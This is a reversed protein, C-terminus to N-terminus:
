DEEAVKDKKALQMQKLAFYEGGLATLEDDTGREAIVGNKIVCIIDSNVITSLRHAVVFTTRGVMLQALADQVLRESRTDLASTAEDLLLLPANKLVARAIAVRQRQGGSLLVGREGIITDFGQPMKDVFESVNAADSAKRVEDMTANPKGMKINDAITGDFLFVDQSVEAINARLSELTYDRMDLGNVLIAGATTDYFRELLHVITTKGGGSAGVLACMQGPKVVLNINDLIKRGPEDDYHFGANKFEVTIGNPADLKVADAKDKIGSDSDLFGFLGEAAILGQQVGGGINTLSKAPKYAATLALLFAMFDGITMIGRSILTGGVVLSAALGVSIMVEMLPSRLGDLQINKYQVGIAKDEIEGMRQRSPAEANYGQITKIGQISQLVWSASNAAIGFYKRTNKARKRLILVLPIFVAPVIFLLVICLPGAYWMMLAFMMLMTASNRILNVLSSTVLDLVANSQLSFLNMLLGSNTKKFRTMDQEIIHAYLRRRLRTAAHLGVHGMILTNSYGFAGKLFFAAIVQAGLLYLVQISSTTIFGEDIIKRVITITWAEAAAAILMCAVGAIIGFLQPRGIERWVRAYLSFKIKSEADDNRIFSKCKKGVKCFTKIMFM